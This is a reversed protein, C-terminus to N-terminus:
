SRDGASATEPRLASSWGGGLARYLAVVSLASATACDSLETQSALLSRRAVLVATFDATGQQYARQAVNLATQNQALALQLQEHRKLETTYANLADDVEHWARLVTQQYAIGALRHRAESLALNSKLRGGQFIPLHLTPGISFRRSDWSGLDSLDFAQVGLSGTLSIRPYFDATAAGIDAVAARLRAEAQLIDPRQRALESPIGVPLRQPMPPLGAAALRDDLERPPQGLLLALANMLADRQHRLQSLRAEIGAVEARAAAADFRTAVGNRERSEAMRLLDEAIGRNEEVIAEQAQVGRLLLYTRAVDGSVSVRVAEMGFGSAQVKAEAADSLHRLYGWLDLEWGAQLGLSWTSTPETPAGLLVMPSHESLASRAYSADASLQPRRAANALGLQARSEEVRVSAALLDLNSAAAEAQLASLTADGFLQWWESPAPAEVLAPQTAVAVARARLAADPSALSPERVDPATVCGTLVLALAPAVRSARGLTKGRFVRNM